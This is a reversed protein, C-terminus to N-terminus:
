KMKVHYKSYRIQKSEQEFTVKLNTKPQGRIIPGLIVTHLPIHAVRKRPDIGVWEGGEARLTNVMAFGSVDPNGYEPYIKSSRCENQDQKSLCQLYDRSSGTNRGREVLSRALPSECHWLRFLAGARVVSGALKGSARERGGRSMVLKTNFDARMLLPLLLLASLFHCKIENKRPLPHCVYRPM